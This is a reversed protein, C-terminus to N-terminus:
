HASLFFRRAVWNRQPVTTATHFPVPNVFMQVNRAIDPLARCNGAIEQWKGYNRAIHPSQQCNAGARCNGAIGPM